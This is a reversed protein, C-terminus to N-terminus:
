DRPWFVFALGALLGVPAGYIVGYAPAVNSGPYIVFCLAIGLAAGIWAGLFPGLLLRAFLPLRKRPTSRATGSYSVSSVGSPPDLRFGAAGGVVCTRTEPRGLEDRYHLRYARQSKSRTLWGPAFPAFTIRELRWGRGSALQSLNARDTMVQFALAGLVLALLILVPM